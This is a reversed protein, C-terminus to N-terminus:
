WSGITEKAEKLDDDQEKSRNTIGKLETIVRELLDRAEERDAINKIKITGEYYFGKELIGNETKYEDAAKEHERKRRTNSWNRKYLQKALENYYDYDLKKETGNRYQEEHLDIAKRGLSVSHDANGFSIPFGPVQEYLQGLVYFSVAHDPKLTVATKLLERMEDAKMLANLVGKVQGWRGINASKWFYGLHNDPDLEIARSAYGEGEEFIELLMDPDSDDKEAEDGLNQTARALRWYLEAMDSNGSVKELSDLMLNKEEQYKEEENLKDARVAIDQVDSFAWVTSIFFIIVFVPFIKKLM